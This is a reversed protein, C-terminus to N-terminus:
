KLWEVRVISELKKFEPDATVVPCDLEVAVAAAFCDALSVANHAKIEVVRDISVDASIIKIPLAEIAALVQPNGKGRRELLYKVEAINIVSMYLEAKGQSAESLLGRVREWGTEKQLFALVAFSDLAWRTM